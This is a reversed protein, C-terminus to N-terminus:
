HHRNPDLLSWFACKPMQFKGKFDTLLCQPTIGCLLEAVGVFGCTPPEFGGLRALYKDNLHLSDAM